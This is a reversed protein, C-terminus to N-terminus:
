ESVEASGDSKSSVTIAGMWITAILFWGWGDKGQFALCGAITACIASVLLRAIILIRTTSM